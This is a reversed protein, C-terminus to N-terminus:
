NFLKKIYLVSREWFNEEKTFELYKKCKKEWIKLLPKLTMVTWEISRDIRQKRDTARNGPEANNPNFYRFLAGHESQKLRGGYNSPKVGIPINPSTYSPINGPTNDEVTTQFSVAHGYFDQGMHSLIGMHKLAEECIEKTECTFSASNPIQSLLLLVKIREWQLLFWYGIIANVPNEEMERNFHRHMNRSYDNNRDTFLNGKVINDVIRSDLNPNIRM